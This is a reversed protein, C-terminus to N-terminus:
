REMQHSGPLAVSVKPLAEIFFIYMYWYTIKHFDQDMQERDMQIDIWRNSQGYSQRNAHMVVSVKPLAETFSFIHIHWFHMCKGNWEMEM